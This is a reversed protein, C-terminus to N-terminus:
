RDQSTPMKAGRRLAGDMIKRALAGYDGDFHHGGAVKIIEVGALSADTCGSEDSEDTGLFCQIQSSDLKKLEPALPLADSSSSRSFWGSVHIEFDASHSLALLSILRIHERASPKLRNVMFPILDAGFSYGILLIDPTSWVRTFHDIIRALGDAAAEPTQRHWFARLTDLGVVPIGRKQLEQGIQKDLDRWGGDGSYVIAMTQGHHDCPLLVLPLDEITDAAALSPHKLDALVSIVASSLDDYDRLPFIFEPHNRTYPRLFEDNPSPTAIRWFGNLHEVPLYRFGTKTKTYPAGPCLPKKGPLEPSFQFSVAGSFQGTESQALVAYALAGAAGAGALVTATSPSLHQRLLLKSKLAAVDDAARQCEAETKDMAALYQVTNVVAVIQGAEALARLSEAPIPEKSGPDSFLIVVGAPPGVAGTIAVPGLRPLDLKEAFAVSTALLLHLFVVLGTRFM